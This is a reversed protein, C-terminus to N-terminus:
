HKRQNLALNQDSSIQLASWVVHCVMLRTSPHFFIVLSKSFIPVALRESDWSKLSFAELTSRDYWGCERMEDCLDTSYIRQAACHVCLPSPFYLLLILLCLIYHVINFHLACHKIYVPNFHELLCQWVWLLLDRKFGARELAVDDGGSFTM